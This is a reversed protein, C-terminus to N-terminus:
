YLRHEENQVLKKFTMTLFPKKDMGISKLVIDAQDILFKDVQVQLRSTEVKSMFDGRKSM